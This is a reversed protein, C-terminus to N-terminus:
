YRVGWITVDDIQTGDGKWNYYEELIMNLQDNMPLKQIESLLNLYRKTGYKKGEPGNFQDLIGDSQLYITDGKNFSIEIDTFSNNMMERDGISYRDGNIQQLKNSQCVIAKQRAGAIKLLKKVTDLACITIDMGDQFNTDMNNKFLKIIYKNAFQLIEAPSQLKNEIVAQNLATLAAISMLAGPVGHGTCDVVAFLIQNNIVKCWYFDGSVIHKPKYILFQDDILPKLSNIDPLIHNQIYQAYHISEMIYKNKEELEKIYYSLKDRSRKLEIQTSIRASLEDSNFPKNIYDVAGKAFGKVMSDLDNKITIFIVPIHRLSEQEKIKDCVEYGDMEPMVIDLLILDFSEKSLRILAERGTLAFECKYNLEKLLQGLVTLNNSNDDVILIKAKYNIKSKLM